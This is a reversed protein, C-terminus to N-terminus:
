FTKRQFRLKLNRQFTAESLDAGRLMKSILDKPYVLTDIFTCNHLNWSFTCVRKKMKSSKKPRKQEGKKEQQWKILDCNSCEM